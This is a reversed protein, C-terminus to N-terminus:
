PAGFSACALAPPTFAGWCCVCGVRDHCEHAWPLHPAPLRGQRSPLPCGARVACLVSSDPADPVRLPQLLGAGWLSEAELQWM